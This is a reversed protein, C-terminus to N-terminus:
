LFGFVRVNLFARHLIDWLRLMNVGVRDRVTQARCADAIPIMPCRLGRHSDVSNASRCACCHPRKAAPIPLVPAKIAESPCSHRGPLKVLFKLQPTPRPSRSSYSIMRVPKSSWSISTGRSRKRRRTAREDRGSKIGILKKRNFAGM